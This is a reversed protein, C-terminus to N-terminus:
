FLIKGCFYNETFKEKKEVKEAEKPQFFDKQSPFLCNKTLTNSTDANESLQTSFMKKGSRERRFFSGIVIKVFHSFKLGIV